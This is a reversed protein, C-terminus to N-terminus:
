TDKGYVRMLMDSTADSYSRVGDSGWRKMHGTAIKGGTLDGLSTSATRGIQFFISSSYQPTGDAGEGDEVAYIVVAHESAPVTIDSSFTFEQWTSGALDEGDIKVSTGIIGTALDLDNGDLEIIRLYIDLGSLDGTTSTVYFDKQCIDVSVDPTITTGTYVRTDASYAVAGSNDHAPSYYDYLSCSSGASGDTATGQIFHWKNAQFNKIEFVEGITTGLSARNGATLVTGDNLVFQDSGDNSQLYHAATTM